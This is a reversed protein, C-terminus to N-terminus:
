EGCKGRPITHPHLSAIRKALVKAGAALQDRGLASPDRVDAAPTNGTQAPVLERQQRTHASVVVNAELLTPIAVGGWLYQTRQGSRQLEVALRRRVQMRESGGFTASTAETM